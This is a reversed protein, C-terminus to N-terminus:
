KKPRDLDLDELRLGTDKLDLRFRVRGPEGAHLFKRVPGDLADSLMDLYLALRYVSPASGFAAREVGFREARSREAWEREWRYARAAWIKGAAQGGAGELMRELEGERAKRKEMDLGVGAKELSEMKEVLALAATESGAAESLIRAREQRAKEIATKREQRAMVGKHFEGATEQPPHIVAMGVFFIEVGLGVGDCANQIREKLVRGAEGRGAGLAQDLNLGLMYRSLEREGLNRLLDQPRATAGLYARLDKIRFHVPIDAL